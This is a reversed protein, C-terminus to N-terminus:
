HLTEDLFPLRSDSSVPTMWTDNGPDWEIFGPAHGVQGEDSRLTVVHLSEVMKRVCQIRTTRYDSVVAPLTECRVDNADVIVVLVGRLDRPAVLCLFHQWTEELALARTTALERDFPIWM